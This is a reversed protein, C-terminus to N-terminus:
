IIVIRNLTNTKQKIYLNKMTIKIKIIKNNKYAKMKIQMKNILIKLIKPIIIKINRVIKYRNQNLIAIIHISKMQQKNFLEQKLYKKSIIEEM